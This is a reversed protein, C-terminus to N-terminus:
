FGRWTNFHSTQHLVNSDVHQFLMFKTTRARVRKSRGVCALYMGDPSFELGRVIRDTGAGQSSARSRATALQTLSAPGLWECSHPRAHRGQCSGQRRVAFAALNIAM